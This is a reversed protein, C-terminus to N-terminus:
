LQDGIPLLRCLGALLNRYFGANPDVSYTRVQGDAVETWVLPWAPASAGATKAADPTDLTDPALTVRYSITPKTVEDFLNAVENALRPSHIVLALETNLHASRPDLNMSGIVLIKRDIM